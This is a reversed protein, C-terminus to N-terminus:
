PRAAVWSDAFSSFYAYETFIHEASVYQELQVLWCSRCVYVHLPYFPEMANLQDPRLYSECLPSMGLDVVTDHLLWRLVPVGGGRGREWERHDDKERGDGANM